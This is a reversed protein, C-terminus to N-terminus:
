DASFNAINGGMISANPVVVKKGDGARITTAFVRIEEVVGTVGAAEIRDGVRFPRLAILLVGAAFGSLTGKLALGVALGAAGLVAFFSTTPVGAKELASIVVLGMLAVYALNSCFGVLTPDVGAAGMLRNLGRSLGKACFWGLLLIVLAAAIPLGHTLAFDEVTNLLTEM